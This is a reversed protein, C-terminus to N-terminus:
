LYNSLNSSIWKVYFSYPDKDDLPTFIIYFYVSLSKFHLKSYKWM